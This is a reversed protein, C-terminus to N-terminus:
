LNQRTLQHLTTREKASGIMMALGSDIVANPRQDCVWGMSRWTSEAIIECLFTLGDTDMDKQGSQLMKYPIRGM